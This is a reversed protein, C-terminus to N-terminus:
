AQPINILFRAGPTSSDLEISGGHKELIYRSLWLGLGMGNAKQSRLLEFIEARQNASIGPGTDAICVQAMMQTITSRIYIQRVDSSKMAEVANILLNLLVHEMEGAGAQIKVAANLDTRIEVGM